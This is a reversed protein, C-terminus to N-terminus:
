AAQKYSKLHKCDKGKGFRWAPCTCYMAGDGGIRIQYTQGPRSLSDVTKLVTM